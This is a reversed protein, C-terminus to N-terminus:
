RDRDSPPNPNVVFHSLVEPPAKPLMVVRPPPVVVVPSAAKRKMLVANLTAEGELDVQLQGFATKWPHITDSVELVDSGSRQYQTDAQWLETVIVADSAVVDRWLGAAVADSVTLANSDARDAILGAVITDGFVLADTSLTRIYSTATLLSDTVTVNDSAFAGSFTEIEVDDLLAVSEALALQYSMALAVLDASLSLTDAGAVNYTMAVNSSDTLGLTDDITQDIM